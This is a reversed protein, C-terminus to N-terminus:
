QIFDGSLLRNLIKNLTTAMEPNAMLQRFVISLFQFLHQDASFMIDVSPYKSKRAYLRMFACQQRADTLTNM